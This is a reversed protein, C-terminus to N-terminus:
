SLSDTTEAIELSHCSVYRQRRTYASGRGKHQHPIPEVLSRHGSNLHEPKTLVFVQYRGEPWDSKDTNEIAAAIRRDIVDKTARLRAAEEPSWEVDDRRHLVKPIDQKIEQSTYFAMYDVGRFFRGPQCVYVGTQQYLDWAKSAAVVVTDQVVHPKESYVDMVSSLSNLWSKAAPDVWEALLLIRRFEFPIDVNLLSDHHALRNRFRRVGELQSAIRKRTGPSGPFSKHLTSRWLEEYKTGLLGTWFGFSLNAVIQHRTEKNLKRLRERVTSVTLSVAEQDGGIPMLFWPIGRTTEKFSRSMEQDIANRLLVEFHAIVEFSAASLRASWEYIEKAKSADSGSARM